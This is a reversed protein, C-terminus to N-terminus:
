KKKRKKRTKNRQTTRKQTKKKKTGAKKKAPDKTRKRKRPPIVSRSPTALLQCDPMAKTGRTNPVWSDTKHCYMLNDDAKTKEEQQSEARTSKPKKKGKNASDPNESNDADDEPPPLWPKPITLNFDKAKCM